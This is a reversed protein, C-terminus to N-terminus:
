KFCFSNLYKDFYKYKVTGVNGDCGGFKTRNFPKEGLFLLYWKHVSYKTQYKWDLKHFFTNHTHISSVYLILVISLNCKTASVGMYPTVSM